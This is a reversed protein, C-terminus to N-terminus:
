GSTVCREDRWSSECTEQLHENRCDHAIEAVYADLGEWNDVPGACVSGPFLHEDAGDYLWAEFKDLPLSTMTSCDVNRGYFGVGFPRLGAKEDGPYCLSKWFYGPIAVRGKMWTTQGGLKTGTIIYLTKSNSGAKEANQYVQDAKRGVACEYPQWVCQNFDDDQPAVNIMSFTGNQVDADKDNIANPNIHGRNYTNGCGSYDSDLGQCDGCNSQQLDDFSPDSLRCHTESAKWIDSMRTVGWSETQLGKCKDNIASHVEKGCLGLQVRDWLSSSPRDQEPVDPDRTIASATYEPIRYHTNFATAFVPTKEGALTHCIRCTSESSQFSSKPWSDGIFFKDCSSTLRSCRTSCEHQPAPDDQSRSCEAQKKIAPQAQEEALLKDCSSGDCTGRTVASELEVKLQQLEVALTTSCREDRWSSECTEQLHENRCDHAIEAVYADLGEWNDVPGACVSGPFLHEDAGDYLWAEFEDLSLSTMTSCDINRGYFGVGFPRLGAKEDGPYCLAKWFYGPIAVRGKMWTTQRGLKTGTIIYLTKSNSGAKEANQYVQDAKRGVACEYPQWVCQNFDDDQPAVNIMSFTGNQVDADKDNIANPNIHGRNYTNGCGSYDSDLGQCDGCYSQQLDDFSPDSLRCHTESAKWIDSMRTVGWSETQLGKCKDRIASHVEKGCLGLQVRDWLSSSPRDQEPVNPDRTIASATYEPIRYHTNFATAFVPTKEGALTHCIRCTSESSQFSSKPWSDGIFFNDCSSTLRSCRTSCEHKPAPDDHRQSCKSKSQTYFAGNAQSMTSFLVTNVLLAAMFGVQGKLEGM